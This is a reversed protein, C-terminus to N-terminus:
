PTSLARLVIRSLTSPPIPKTVFLGYGMATIEPEFRQEASLVIVHTHNQQLRHYQERLLDIGQESSVRMDCLMVEFIHADLLVRAETLSIASFTEFGLKALTRVYLGQTTPDDEVILAKM